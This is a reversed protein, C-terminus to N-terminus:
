QGHKFQVKSEGSWFARDITTKNPEVYLSWKGTSINFWKWDHSCISKLYDRRNISLLAKENTDIFVCIPAVWHPTFKTVNSAINIEFDRSSATSINNQTIIDLLKIM